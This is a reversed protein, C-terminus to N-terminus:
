FILNARIRRVDIEDRELAIHVIIQDGPFLKIVRPLEWQHVVMGTEDFVAIFAVSCEDQATWDALLAFAQREYWPFSLEIENPWLLGLTAPFGQVIDFTFDQEPATNM